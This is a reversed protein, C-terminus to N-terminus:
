LFIAMLVLVGLSFLFLGWALIRLLNTMIGAVVETMLKVQRVVIFSFIVYIGLALLVFFKVILWINFHFITELINEM